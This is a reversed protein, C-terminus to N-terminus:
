TLSIIIHHDSEITCCIDVAYILNICKVHSVMRRPRPLPIDQKGTISQKRKGLTPVGEM